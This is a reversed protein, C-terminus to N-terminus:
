SPTQATVPKCAKLEEADLIHFEKGEGVRAEEQM